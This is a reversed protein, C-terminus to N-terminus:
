KFDICLTPSIPHRIHTTTLAPMPITQTIYPQILNNFFNIRKQISKSFSQNNASPSSPFKMNLIAVSKANIPCKTGNMIYFRIQQQSNISM